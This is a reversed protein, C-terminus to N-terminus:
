LYEVPMEAAIDRAKLTEMTDKLIAAARRAGGHLGTSGGFNIRMGSDLPQFFAYFAASLMVSKIIELIGVRESIGSDSV